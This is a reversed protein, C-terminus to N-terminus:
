APNYITSPVVLLTAEAHKNTLNLQVGRVMYTHNGGYAAPINTIPLRVPKTSKYFNQWEGAVHTLEDLNITLSQLYKNPEKYANVKDKLVDTVVTSVGFTDNEWCTGFDQYRYGYTDFSTKNLYSYPRNIYDVVSASNLVTNMNQNSVLSSWLVCTTADLSTIQTFSTPSTGFLTITKDDFWFWGKYKNTWINTIFSLMDQGDFSNGYVNSYGDIVDAVFTLNSKNLDYAAWTGSVNEWKLGIPAEAWTSKSLQSNLSPPLNQWTTFGSPYVIAGSMIQTSLRSTAGLLDLEVIQDTSSTQVPQCTYGQVIGTWTVNGTAGQPTITFTVEKGIWWDPTQTIGV